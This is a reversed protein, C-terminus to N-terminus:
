LSIWFLRQFTSLNKWKKLNKFILWFINAVVLVLVTVGLATSIIKEQILYVIVLGVGLVTSPLGLSLALVKLLKKNEDTPM